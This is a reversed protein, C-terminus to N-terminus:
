TKTGKKQGHSHVFCLLDHNTGMSYVLVFTVAIYYEALQACFLLNHMDHIKWSLDESRQKNRQCKGPKM